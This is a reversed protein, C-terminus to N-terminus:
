SALQAEKLILTSSMMFIYPSFMSLDCPSYVSPTWSGTGPYRCVILNHECRSNVWNTVTYYNSWKVRDSAMKFCSSLLSYLATSKGLVLLFPTYVRVRHGNKHGLFIVQGQVQACAIHGFELMLVQFFPHTWMLAWHTGYEPMTGLCCTHVSGIDSLLAVASHSQLNTM